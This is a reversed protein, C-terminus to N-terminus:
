SNTIIIVHTSILQMPLRALHGGRGIDLKAQAVVAMPFAPSTLMVSAVPISSPKESICALTNAVVRRVEM